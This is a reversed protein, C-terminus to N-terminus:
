QSRVVSQTTDQVSAFAGQAEGVVNTEIEKLNVWYPDAGAALMESEELVGDDLASVHYERVTTTRTSRLTKDGPLSDYWTTEGKASVETTTGSAVQDWQVQYIRELADRVDSANTTALSGSANSTLSRTFLPLTGLMIILFLVAAILVEILSVGSQATLRRRTKSTRGHAQNTIRRIMIVRRELGM